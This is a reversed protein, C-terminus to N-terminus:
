SPASDGTEVKQANSKSLTALFQVISPKGSDSSQDEHKDSATQKTLAKGM